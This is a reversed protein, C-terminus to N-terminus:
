CTPELGDWGNSELWDRHVPECLPATDVIEGERTGALSEEFSSLLGLAPAQALTPTGDTRHLRRDVPATPSYQRDLTEGDAIGVAGEWYNGRGDETWIRVPGTSVSVHRGNGVFDNGTVTNTPLMSRTGVGFRNDALLNGEVISSHTDLQLGLDNRLLRNGAVYTDTGGVDIGTPSDTVENGVLGNREPGTMVFIGTSIQDSIENDALLAGSTHMMHVGMRSDRMTNNRVVIGDARHTYVGDLGEVFTSNQVVGPSRMAVVGMHADLYDPYGDVTVNDVVIDPSDRLIVGSAQTNIRVDRILLGAADDAAIAADGTAYDDQIDADWEEDESATGHDHDHGQTAAAGPTERGVGSIAVGDIAVSAATVNVVTDNGNGSIRVDGAGRITVPKDIEFEEDYEGAPLLVTTEPPAADIAAAITPEDEGVVVSVPRDLSAESAALLDDAVRHREDVRERVAAAGDVATAAEPVEAWSHVTGGHDGAFEEAAARDAFPVVTEGAPTAAGSDVVYHAEAADTWAPERPTSPYGQGTLGVSDDYATVYVSIAHGFRQGHAPNERAALFQEVGYYGVVYPYQSYFVQVRPLEVNETEAELRLEDDLTLGVAVTEDFEVPDPDASGFDVAFLGGVAGVAAVLAVLLVLRHTGM